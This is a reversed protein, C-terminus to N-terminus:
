VGIGLVFAGLFVVLVTATGVMAARKSLPKNPLVSLLYVSLFSGAALTVAMTVGHGSVLPLGGAVIASAGAAQGNFPSDDEAM